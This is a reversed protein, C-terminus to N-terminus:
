NRPALQRTSAARSGRRRAAAPPRKVAMINGPKLRGHALGQGHLYALVELVSRLMYETESPTLARTPVIQSLSEQALETVVYLMTSRGLQCRGSHLVALLHQHSLKAAREWRSLQLQSTSPSADVFKLAVKQSPQGYEALFVASHDSGGLFQLLRFRGDVVEGEWQKWADKM